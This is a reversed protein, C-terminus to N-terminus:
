TGAVNTSRGGSSNTATGAAHSRATERCRELPSTVVAALQLGDLRGAAARAQAVGTEDLHVGKTRGALVGGNNAATRGHRALIVTAM